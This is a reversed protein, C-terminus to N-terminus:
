SKGGASSNLAIDLAHGHDIGDPLGVQVEQEISKITRADPNLWVTVRWAEADLQIGEQVVRLQSPRLAHVYALAIEDWPRGNLFPLVNISTYGNADYPVFPRGQRSNLPKGRYDDPTLQKSM